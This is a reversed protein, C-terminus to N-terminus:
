IEDHAELDAIAVALRKLMASVELEYLPPDELIHEAFLELRVSDLEIADVVAEFRRNRNLVKQAKEITMEQNTKWDQIFIDRGEIHWDSMKCKRELM